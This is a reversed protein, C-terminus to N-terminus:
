SHIPLTLLFASIPGIKVEDALIQVEGVSLSLSFETLTLGKIGQAHSSFNFGAVCRTGGFKRSFVLCSQDEYIVEFDGDHLAPSARRIAFAQKAYTLVSAADSAQLSVSGPRHAEIVPLWPQASSFGMFPEQHLWPMITRCGDRGKTDPWNAVGLPDRIDEFALEAQTLGLEEGQYVFITGRLTILLTLAFKAVQNIPADMKWRSVVRECDHNCLAWSPWGTAGLGDTWPQLAERFYQPDARNSLLQFSYATHLHDDGSTYEIMRALNDDSGIEGVVFTGPFQNMLARIRKLFTLNEPQCVNFIHRQMTAPTDGLKPPNNRLLKDHFYYNVTDLRFGDVGRKLWFSGIELIAEQVEPCHFNLDPMQPLFNHLYYQRRRPEWTWTGGGMWSQWNTPCTGDALPDAWVYWDAKPNTRSQRSEQFWRHELATHSWVQDIVVKLNLSHAKAILADFDDLTGFMPEISCHDSVDYGFDRQPSAFFPSLWIGDVGLDAVYDLKSIVGLLDGIGDGNSDAFSRPYIQYLTAGRWWSPDSQQM